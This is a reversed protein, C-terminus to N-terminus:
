QKVLLKTHHFNQYEFMDKDPWYPVTQLADTVLKNISKSFASGHWNSTNTVFVWAYGDPQHKVLASTGALTGTRLWDGNESVSMWGIPMTNLQYRTMFSVTESKLVDPKGSDGDIASLFRLLESPSAVWGGAGSLAEIDNGGYFRPVVRESGDCAVVKEIVGPDYYRVENAFKNEYLNHGLHMDLCGAPRLIRDKIYKEYSEGSVKEIVKSLIAYGVNSYRTASGPVFRLPRDLVFQIIQTSSVPLPVNMREAIDHACFMPDGYATTYGGQHRLLHEVTIALTNRDKIKSFEVDNLIGNPGFVKDNLHLKNEEALKMIGTATILKSVSAIRFLHRVETREGVEKDAFGYGKCYLLKGNKMLAFSAGKINWKQMFGNIRRDFFRAESLDSDENKVVQNVPFLVSTRLESLSGAYLSSDKVSVGERRGAFSIEWPRTLITIIVLVILIIYKM